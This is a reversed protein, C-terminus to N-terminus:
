NVIITMRIDPHERGFPGDACTGCYATLTGAKDAMFTIVKPTTESTVLENIGYGDITIGHMYSSTGEATVANLRVLSGQKVAISNPEYRTHFITVNFEVVEENRGFPSSGEPWFFIAALIVLAIVLIALLVKSM